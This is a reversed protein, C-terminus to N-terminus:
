RMIINFGQQSQNEYCGIDPIKRQVRPNGDLDTASLTVGKDTGANVANSGSVLRYNGNARDRFPDGNLVLCNGAENIQVTAACHSFASSSGAWVDYTAFAFSVDVDNTKSNNGYILCNLVSGSGVRVGACLTAENGVITCNELVGSNLRVTGYQVSTGDQWDFGSEKNEVILCNRVSGGNVYVAGGADHYAGSSNNSIVCHTVTGGGSLSIASGKANYSSGTRAGTLVCNTVVANASVLVNGGSLGGSTVAGDKVTVGSLVIGDKNLSFMRHASSADCAVVVDAPNGTAGYITLRKNVIMEKAVLYIEPAIEIACGDEAIALVDNLDHAATAPTAYPAENTGTKAVYFKQGVITVTLPETEMAEIGAVDNRVKLSVTRIGPQAYAHSVITEGTVEKTTGDGFDWMYIVNEAAGFNVATAVFSLTCPAVGSAAGDITFSASLEAVPMESIEYAGIDVRDNIIRNNGDLDISGTMWPQDSGANVITNIARPRYDGAAADVFPEEIIVNGEGAVYTPTVCYEFTANGSNYVQVNEYGLSVGKSTQTNAGIICNRVTGGTAYVGSWKNHTNGAITCSELLGKSIAVAGYYTRDSWTENSGKTILCNRVIANDHKIYVASGYANNEDRFKNNTFISHTVLGPGEMFIAGNKEVYAREIICNSVIGCSEMNSINPFYVGGYTRRNDGGFGNCDITVSLLKAEPHRMEFRKKSKCIIKVDSPVHSASRITVPVSLAIQTSDSESTTFTPTYDGNALVIESADALALAAAIAADITMPDEATGAGTASGTPSAYFVTAGMACPAFAGFSVFAACLAAKVFMSHKSMIQKEEKQKEARFAVVVGVPCLFHLM